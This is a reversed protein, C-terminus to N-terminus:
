RETFKSFHNYIYSVIPRKIQGSADSAMMLSPFVM